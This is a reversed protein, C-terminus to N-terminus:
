WDNKIKDKIVEYRNCLSKVIKKNNIMDLFEKKDVFKIDCVEDEQLKIDKLDIKKNTKYVDVFQHSHLVADVFTCDNPNVIVGIEEKIERILTEMSSEKTISGGGPVEWKYPYFKNVSRQTILLKKNNFIWLESGVRYENEELQMSSNKTYGLAKRNIDVVDFLEM